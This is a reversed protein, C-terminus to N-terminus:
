ELMQSTIQPYFIAEKLRILTFTTRTRGTYILQPYEKNLFFRLPYHYEACLMNLFSNLADSLEQTDSFLIENLWDDEIDRYTRYIDGSLIMIILFGLILFQIDGFIIGASMFPVVIILYLASDKPLHKKEQDISERIEMEIETPWSLKKGAERMFEILGHYLGYMEYGGRPKAEHYPVPSELEDESVNFSDMFEVAKTISERSLDYFSYKEIERKQLTYGYMGIMVGLVIMLIALPVFWILLLIAFVISMSAIFFYPFIIAHERYPLVKLHQRLKDFERFKEKEM